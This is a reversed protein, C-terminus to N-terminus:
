DCVDKDEKREFYDYCKLASTFIEWAAKLDEEKHEIAVAKVSSPSVLVKEEGNKKYKAPNKKLHINYVTDVHYGNLECLHKYAAMKIPWSKSPKASTKIDLLAPKMTSKMVCILDFEGSFCKVDDYIRTKTYLTQYINDKAWEIFSNVYLQYEEEVEPSWLGLLHATCYAHVKEGRICANVLTDIPVSRLESENQRDVIDSIRPYILRKMEINGM